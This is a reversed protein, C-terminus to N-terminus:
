QRVPENIPSPSDASHSSSTSPSGGCIRVDRDFASATQYALKYLRETENRAQEVYSAADRLRQEADLLRQAAFLWDTHINFHHRARSEYESIM